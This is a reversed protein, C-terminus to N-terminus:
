RGNGYHVHDCLPCMAKDEAAQIANTLYAPVKGELDKGWRAVLETEAVFGGEEHDYGAWSVQYVEVLTPPTADRHYMAKVIFDGVELRFLGHRGCNVYQQEILEKPEGTEDAIVLAYGQGGDRGGEEWLAPEGCYEV